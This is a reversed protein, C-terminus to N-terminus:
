RLATNGSITSDTMTVLVVWFILFEAGPPSGTTNGTIQTNDKITLTGYNQIASVTTKKSRAASSQRQHM